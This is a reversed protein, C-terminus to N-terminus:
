SNSAANENDDRMVYRDVLPKVKETLFNVKEMAFKHCKNNHDVCVDLCNKRCIPDEYSNFKNFFEIREFRMKPGVEGIPNGGERMYIVCPFHYKGCVVSDDFFLYCKNCDSATLGRVNRDNKINNVRYKLIPHANLIDDGVMRVEELLHNYQAASIIRIDAVGLEHAFKIIDKVSNVNDETLVVGVTMYTRASIKKINDTIKNFYGSVGAMKDAFSSCCADLSVSFDNIGCDILKDYISWDASGNTSLAIKKVNGDSCKKVLDSLNPYMTPEGGSFRVHKLGDSIWTDLVMNARNLDMDGKCDKRLGRCYPCSFNCRDTLIMECRWMPSIPGVNMAREDCLTYFGIQELKM